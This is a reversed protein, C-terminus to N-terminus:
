KAWYWVTVIANAHSISVLNERGVTNAFEAAEKLARNVSWYPTFTRFKLEM